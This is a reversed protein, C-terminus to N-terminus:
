QAANYANTARPFCCQADFSSPDPNRPQTNIQLNPVAAACANFGLTPRRLGRFAIHPGLLAQKPTVPHQQTGFLHATALINASNKNLSDFDIGSSNPVASIGYRGSLWTHAWFHKNRIVSHKFSFVRTPSLLCYFIYRILSCYLQSKRNPKRLKATRNRRNTGARTQRNTNTRPCAADEEFDHM